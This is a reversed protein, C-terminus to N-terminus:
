IDGRAITEAIARQVAPDEYTNPETSRADRDVAGCPDCRNVKVHAKRWSDPVMGPPHYLPSEGGLGSEWVTVGDPNTRDLASLPVTVREGNVQLDTTPEGPPLPLGPRWTPHADLERQIAEVADRAEDEPTPPLAEARHAGREDVFTEEDSPERRQTSVRDNVRPVDRVHRRWADPRFGGRSLWEDLANVHEVLVDVDGDGHELHTEVEARIARLAANPDM